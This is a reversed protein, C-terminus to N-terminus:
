SVIRLDERTHLVDDEGHGTKKKERKYKNIHDGYVLNKLDLIYGYAIYFLFYM